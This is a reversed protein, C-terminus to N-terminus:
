HVIAPVPHDWRNTYVRRKSKKMKNIFFGIRRSIMDKATQINEPPGTITITNTKFDHWIFDVNAKETIKIFGYGKRGIVQKTVNIDKPAYMIGKMPESFMSHVQENYDVFEGETPVTTMDVVASAKSGYTRELHFDSETFFNEAEMIFDQLYEEPDTHTDFHGNKNFIM